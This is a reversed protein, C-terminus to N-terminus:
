RTPPRLIDCPSLLREKVLHEGAGAERVAAPSVGFVEAIELQSRHGGEHAAVIERRLDDSCAKM